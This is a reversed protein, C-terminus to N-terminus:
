VRLSWCAASNVNRSSMRVATTHHRPSATRGHMTHAASAGVAGRRAHTSCASGISSVRSAVKEDVAVDIGCERPSVGSCIAHWLPLATMTSCMMRPRHCRCHFHPGTVLM